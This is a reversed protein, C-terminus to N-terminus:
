VFDWLTCGKGQELCVLYDKIIVEDLSGFRIRGHGIICVDDSKLTFAM